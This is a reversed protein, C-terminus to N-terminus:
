GNKIIQFVVKMIRKSMMNMYHELRKSRKLVDWYDRRPIVIYKTEPKLPYWEKNVKWLEAARGNLVSPDKLGQSVQSLVSFMLRMSDSVKIKIDRQSMTQFLDHKPHKPDIYLIMKFFGNVTQGRVKMANYIFDGTDLYPKDHGKLLATLRANKSAGKYRAGSFITELVVDLKRMETVDHEIKYKSAKEINKQLKLLQLLKSGFKFAYQINFSKSM